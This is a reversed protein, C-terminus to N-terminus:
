GAEEDRWPAFAAALAEMRRRWDDGHPRVHITREEDLGPGADAPDGLRLDIELHDAPLLPGMADGWEILAVSSGDGVEDYGLDIVESLTDLRYVDLHILPVRGRYDRRLLFSPSTVREAVGLAEAAGQVLCTKGAGLEGTLAIVDGIRLLEALAAGVARTQDPTSTRLQLGTGRGENV